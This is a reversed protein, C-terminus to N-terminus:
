IETIIIEVGRERARKTAARIAARQVPGQSGPPVGVSLIRKLTAEPHITTNGLTHGDFKELKAVDRNLRALIAKPNQYYAKRLNMLKYSVSIRRLLDDITKFNFPLEKAMPPRPARLHELTFPLENTASPRQVQLQERLKRRLIEEGERGGDAWGKEWVTQSFQPYPSRPMLFAGAIMSALQGQAAPDAHTFRDLEGLIRQRDARTVGPALVETLARHIFGGGNLDGAKHFTRNIEARLAAEDEPEANAIAEMFFGLEDIREGEPLFVWNPDPQRIYEDEDDAGTVVVPDLRTTPTLQAVRVEGAGSETWQGEKDRLQSPNFGAM